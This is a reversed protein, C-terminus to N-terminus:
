GEQYPEMGSLNHIYYQTIYVLYSSPLASTTVLLLVTAATNVGNSKQGIIAQYDEFTHLRSGQKELFFSNKLM